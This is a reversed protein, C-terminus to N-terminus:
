KKLDNYSATKTSELRVSVHGIAKNKFEQGLERAKREYYLQPDFGEERIVDEDVWLEITVKTSTVM